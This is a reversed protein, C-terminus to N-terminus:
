VLPLWQVVSGAALEGEGEPVKAIADATYLHALRHGGVPELRVAGDDGFDVTCGVWSLRKASQHVARTLVGPRMTPGPEHAGELLDLVRRLYVYASVFVAGPNGPIGLFKADGGTAFLLPKGPRQSVKWFVTELGLENSADTFFDYEGVSVGGTSVVLDSQELADGLARVVARRDDELAVVEVNTYGRVTLWGSLFPTNADYVEGPRLEIGPSVVEDGSILLTIAPQRIVEAEAHGCMSLAAVHREDLRQGPSLLKAGKELEEGVPRIDKGEDVPRSFRVCPSVTETLEQRVVADAGPPIRGGTFVRVAQGKGVRPLRGTEGAAVEGVERLEIPAEESADALDASRVAYGDMASQAFPPLAIKAAVERAAVRRLAHAVALRETELPDIHEAFLSLAESVTIM